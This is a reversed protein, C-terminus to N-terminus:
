KAQLVKFQHGEIFAVLLVASEVDGALQDKLHLFIDRIGEANQVLLGIDQDLLQLIYRLKTKVKDSAERLAVTKSTAEEDEL